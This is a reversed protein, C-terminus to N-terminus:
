RQVLLAGDKDLSDKVQKTLGAIDPILPKGDADRISLSCGAGIFFGIRMKNPALRQLLDTTRRYPCHAPGSPASASPAATAAGAAPKPAAAVTAAPAAADTKKDVM